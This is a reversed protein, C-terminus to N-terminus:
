REVGIRQHANKVIQLRSVARLVPILDFGRPSAVRNRNEIGIRYYLQCELTVPDLEIKEMLTTVMDKLSEQDMHQMDQAVTSLASKIQEESINSLAIQQQYERELLDIEGILLNRQEELENIKRLAPGPNSLEAAMDMAKSIRETLSKLERRLNEAPDEIHQIQKQTEKVVARIFDSSQLDTMIQGVVASDVESLSVCRGKGKQAKIRYHIKNDGYWSEGTPAKLLGTLLYNAPTRRARAVSSSELLKLINEAQEKSILAEHTNEQIVWESRPRQKQGGKYGGTSLKEQHQNWVTCGAYTLANWEMGILSTSPWDINLQEKLRKRSQGAARGELYRKVKAADENTELVSKTVPQGDRVAGTEVSKLRYGRPARGGARFGQRINEAMGALGKERSMLSHLEDFVEMVGIIVMDAIPDSEPLKSYIITVGRKKAEHKFVQAMYRRRSLRSTDVLLLSEWNRSSSKLDRLLSQFGPRQEDKASEVVDSYEQVVILNRNNALKQLERRQADISVDSRDKSSRLYLAANKNKM